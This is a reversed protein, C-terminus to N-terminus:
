RRLILTELQASLRLTDRACRTNAPTSVNFHWGGCGSGIKPFSGPRFVCDAVMSGVAKADLGLELTPEVQNTIFLLILKAYFATQLHKPTCIGLGGLQKSQTVIAWSLLHTKPRGEDGFGWLFNSFIQRLQKDAEKSIPLFALVYNPVTALIVRLLVVRGEFSILNEDWSHMRATISSFVHRWLQARPADPSFPYGLYKIVDRRSLLKWDLTETWRPLHVLEGIPLVQTKRANVLSNSGSCFTDLLTKSYQFASEDWLLFLSVDDAYLNIIMPSGQATLLPRLKRHEIAQNFLNILPISALVFLLPALPCGQRVGSDLVFSTSVYGQAYVVAQAGVMLGQVLQTFKCGCGVQKPILTIAGQLFQTPLTKYDWFFNIFQLCSDQYFPWIIKLSEATFSDLGPAKNNPLLHVTETLELLSPCSDLMAQEAPSVKSQLTTLLTAMDKMNQDSLSPNTYLSPYSDAFADVVSQPDEIVEGSELRLGRVNNKAQRRKFRRLFYSAPADGHKLYRMRSWLRWKHQQLERLRQVQVTLNQIELASATSLDSSDHLMALQKELDPLLRLERDRAKQRDAIIQIQKQWTQM